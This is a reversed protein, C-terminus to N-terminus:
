IQCFSCWSFMFPSVEVCELGECFVVINLFNWITTFNISFGQNRKSFIFCINGTDEPTSVIQSVPCQAWSCFICVNKFHLVAKLITKKKKRQTFLCIRGVSLFDDKDFKEKFAWLHALSSLSFLRLLKQPLQKVSFFMLHFVVCKINGSLCCTYSFGWLELKQSSCHSIIKRKKPPPSPAAKMVIKTLFLNRCSLHWM